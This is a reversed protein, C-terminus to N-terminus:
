HNTLYSRSSATKLLPLATFCFQVSLYIEGTASPGLIETDRSQLIPNPQSMYDIAQPGDPYRGCASLFGFALAAAIALAVHILM